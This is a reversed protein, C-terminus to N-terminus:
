ECEFLLFMEEFFMKLTPPAPFFDIQAQITNRVHFSDSDIRMKLFNKKEKPHPHAKEAVM